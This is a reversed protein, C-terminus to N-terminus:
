PTLRHVLVPPQDSWSTRIGTMFPRILSGPMSACAFKTKSAPSRSNVYTNQSILLNHLHTKRTCVLASQRPLLALCVRHCHGFLYVALMFAGTRKISLFACFIRM